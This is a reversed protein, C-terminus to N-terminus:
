GTRGRRRLTGANGALWLLPLAALALLAAPDPDFGDPVARAKVIDVRPLGDGLLALPALVSPQWLVWAAIWLGLLLTGLLARGRLLQGAGPFTLSALLRARASAREYREVEFLKRTKTEAALGDGLVYLHLCQSCYEHAERDSKCWRCFPGGCRICRRAPARARTSVYSVGCLFLAGLAVMSIPNLLQRLLWSQTAGPDADRDQLRRGELAAQWLSGLELSADIVTPRADHEEASALLDALRKSDIRRAQDLSDNADKFRFAESQALHMNFYALISEPNVELAKRYNVVAEAHQGTAYFINGVNVYAQELSPELDLAKKYEAFAEEFYRGNKYLDALLFRFVPDEPYSAVLEQLKLVHDPDYEGGSAAITSRVAPDATMGYVTVVMRYLPVALVAALLLAVAALRESRRMFRFTAAIWYIAVWGAAFWLLLPLLLVAWGAVRATRDDAFQVVWEEVEHRFPVHYRVVMLLSFVLVAGALALVLVLALENVLSLDRLGRVVAARAAQAMEGAAAFREGADWLVAARARRVQPRGPDLAEALSLSDLAQQHQGEALMREAEAVLAGAPAELRRVGEESCFARIQQSQRTADDLRGDHLLAKRQFWLTQLRTEFSEYDFGRRAGGSTALTIIGDSPEAPGAREGLRIVGDPSRGRERGAEPPEAPEEAPTEAAPRGLRIVGSEPGDPGSAHLHGAALGGALAVLAVLAPALCRRVTPTAIKL